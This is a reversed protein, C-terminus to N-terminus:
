FDGLDQNLALLQQVARRPMHIAFTPGARIALQAKWDAIIARWFRSWKRILEESEAARQLGEWLGYAVNTRTSVLAELCDVRGSYACGGPDGRRASRCSIRATWKERQSRVM